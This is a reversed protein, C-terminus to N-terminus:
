PNLAPPSHRKLNNALVEARSDTMVPPSSSSIPKGFRERYDQPSIGLHRVFSRRMREPDGFGSVTAVTEIRIESSGLYHRAADIRAKEVFKAPTMGTETQFVRAFNRPSMAVREALAEIHMDEAPNEMIWIQLSRLDPHQTAESALYGSFQTQGGPRKLFVVMYRAILLSTERGWDEELLSLALDIGSTIGGSTYIAGDKLFIRDPEVRVDPYEAALRECYAWHTTARRGNLLDAKALLFAGTCVSVLRRVRTSMAAVWERLAPDALVAGVDPAGPILLTDLDDQLDGYASDAHLKLGCSTTVLGPERAIVRFRYAPEPFAGAGMLGANAMGFVDMPGTLDLLELGDFAVIGLIRLKRESTAHLASVADNSM